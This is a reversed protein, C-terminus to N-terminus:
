TDGKEGESAKVSIGLEKLKRGLSTTSIGLIRCTQTIDGQSSRLVRLIHEKLVEKLSENEAM